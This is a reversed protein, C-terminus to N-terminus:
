NIHDISPHHAATLLQHPSQGLHRYDLSANLTIERGNIAEIKRVESQFTDLSTSTIVIEEDVKLFTLAM